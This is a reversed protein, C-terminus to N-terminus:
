LQFRKTGRYAKNFFYRSPDVLNEKDPKYFLVGTLHNCILLLLTLLINLVHIYKNFIQITQLYNLLDMTQINSDKEFM